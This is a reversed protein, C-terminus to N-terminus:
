FRVVQFKNLYSSVATEIKLIYLGKSLDSVNVSRKNPAINKVIKGDISIIQVNLPTENEKLEYCLIDSVPNPYLKLSNNKETESYSYINNDFGIDDWYVSSSFCGVGVNGAKVIDNDYCDIAITTDNTEPNYISITIRGNADREVILKYWHNFYTIAQSNCIVQVNNNIMKRLIIGPNDSDAPYFTVFYFTSADKYQFYFMADTSMLSPTNPEMYFWATYTGYDLYHQTNISKVAGYLDTEPALRLSFNNFSYNNDLSLISNGDHLEYGYYDPYVTYYHKWESIGNEFNDIVQYNQSNASGIIIFIFLFSHLINIFRM